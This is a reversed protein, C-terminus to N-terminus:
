PMQSILTGLLSPLAAGVARHLAQEALVSPVAGVASGMQRTESIIRGQAADFVQVVITADIMHPTGGNDPGVGGSDSMDLAAIWGIVLRDAGVIRALRGLRDFHLVDEGRWGAGSAAKEVADRPVLTFRGAAARALSASLDDAAFREPFLGSFAALPTPAYLDVVGVVTPGSATAGVPVSFSLLVSAVVAGAALRPM